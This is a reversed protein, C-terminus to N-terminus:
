SEKKVPHGFNFVPSTLIRRNNMAPKNLLKKNQKQKLTM